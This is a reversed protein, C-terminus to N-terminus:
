IGIIFSFILGDFCSNFGSDEEACIRITNAIAETAIVETAIVAIVRLLLRSPSELFLLPGISPQWPVTAVTKSLGSLVIDLLPVM